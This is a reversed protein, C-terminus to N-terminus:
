VLEKDDEDDIPLKIQAEKINVGTTPPPPTIETEKTQAKEWLEHLDASSYGGEESIPKGSDNFGYIPTGAKGPYADRLIENERREQDLQSMKGM